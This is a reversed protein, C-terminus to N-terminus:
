TPGPPKGDDRALLDAPADAKIHAAARLTDLARRAEDALLIRGSHAARADRRTEDSAIGGALEYAAIMREIAAAAELPTM